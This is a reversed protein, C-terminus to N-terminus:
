DKNEMQGEPWTAQHHRLWGRTLLCVTSDASIFSFFGWLCFLCPRSFTFFLISKPSSLIFNLNWWEILVVVCPRYQAGDRKRNGREVSACLPTVSVFSFIKKWSGSKKRNTLCPTLQPLSTEHSCTITLFPVSVWEHYDSWSIFLYIVCSKTINVHLLHELYKGKSSTDRTGLVNLDRPDPSLMLSTYVETNDTQGAISISPSLIFFPVSFFFLKPELNKDFLSEHLKSFRM